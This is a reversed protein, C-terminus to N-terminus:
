IWGTRPMGRWIEPEDTGGVDSSCYADRRRTFDEIVRRRFVMRGKESELDLGEALSQRYEAIDLTQFRMRVPRFFRPHKQGPVQIHHLGLSYALLMEGEPTGLLLDAIGGRVTMPRGKKDLGNARKMRGEPLIIVMSEPDDVSDLVQQWTNDRERTVSVINAAVFRWFLGVIPRELTVSAIPITCHASMRWLFKAPVQGAFLAEFLSTHNLIAVLRYPRWRESEPPSDVWIQQQRYFLRSFTRLLLLVLFVLPTRM